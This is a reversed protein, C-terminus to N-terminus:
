KKAVTWTGDQNNTITYSNRDSHPIYDTPDFKFTGAGITAMWGSWTTPTGSQNMGVDQVYNVTIGDVVYDNPNSSISIHSTQEVGDEIGRIGVADPEFKYHKNDFTFRWENDSLKDDSIDYFFMKSGQTQELSSHWKWLTCTVTETTRGQYYDYDSMVVAEANKGIGDAGEGTMSTSTGGIRSYGILADTQKNTVSTFVYNGSGGCYGIFGGAQYKDSNKSSTIVADNECSDIITKFHVNGADGSLYGCSTGILGGSRSAKVTAKNVCNSLTFTINNGAGVSSNYQSGIIGGAKDNASISGTVTVNQILVTATTNTVSKMDYVGIVAGVYDYTNEICVDVNLDKVTVSCTAYKFLCDTLGTITKGSGNFTGTFQNGSTGIPTWEMGDLDIDDLLTASVFNNNFLGKNWNDRFEALTMNTKVNNSQLVSIVKGVAVHVIAEAANDVQGEAWDTTGTVPKNGAVQTGETVHHYVDPESNQDTNENYDFKIGTSTGTLTAAADKSQAHAHDIDGTNTFTVSTSTAYVLDITGKNEVHGQAIKLYAVEAKEDIHLSSPAVIAGANEEVGSIEGVTGYFYVDDNPANLGLTTSASNTRIVVEQANATDNKYTIAAVTENGVDLGTTVTETGSGKYDYLYTSYTADPASAIIWYQYNKVAKQQEESVSNPIYEIGSDKKYVFCDNKSDWLIENDTASTNIKAVDYGAKAAAELASQMTEHKGVETDVALATNLNRVLQTDKSENAKKVVSVFTPVLVAALIAVVAIVIVLEVITFGKKNTKRM